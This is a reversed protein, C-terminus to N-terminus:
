GSKRIGSMEQRSQEVVLGFLPFVGVQERGRRVVVVVDVVGVVRVVDVVDEFCSRRCLRSSRTRFADFSSSRRTVVDKFVSIFFFWNSRYIMMMWKPVLWIILSPTLVDFSVDDFIWNLWFTLIIQLFYNKWRHHKV